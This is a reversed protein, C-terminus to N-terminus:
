DGANKSLLKAPAWQHGLRLLYLGGSGEPSFCDRDWGLGVSWGQGRHRIQLTVTSRRHDYRDLGWAKFGGVEGPVPVWWEEAWEVTRGKAWKYELAGKHRGYSSLPEVGGAMGFDAFQQQWRLRYAANWRGWQWAAKADVFLRPRIQSWEPLNRWALRTGGGLTGTITAAKTKWKHRYDGKLDVQLRDIGWYRHGDWVAHRALLRDGQLRLEPELALNLDAWRLVTYNGELWLAPRGQALAAIPDTFAGLFGMFGLLGRLGLFGRCWFRLGEKSM